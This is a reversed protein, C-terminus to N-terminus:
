CVMKVTLYVGSGVKLYETHTDARMYTYFFLTYFLSQTHSHTHLLSHTHSNTPFNSLLTRRLPKHALVLFTIPALKVLFGFCIVKKQNLAMYVACTESYRVALM